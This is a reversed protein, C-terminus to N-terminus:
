ENKNRGLILKMITSAIAACIAAFLLDGVFGFEPFYRQQLYVPVGMLLAIGLGYLWRPEAPEILWRLNM